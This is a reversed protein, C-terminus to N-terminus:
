VLRQGRPLADARRFRLPAHDGLRVEHAEALRLIDRIEDGDDGGPDTVVDTEVDASDRGVVGGVEAM